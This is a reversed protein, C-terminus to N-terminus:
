LITKTELSCFEKSVTWRAAACGCGNGLRSSLSPYVLATARGVLKRVADIQREPNANGHRSRRRVQLVGDDALVRFRDEGTPLLKAFVYCSFLPVEVFKRRDSWRHVESWRCFLAIGQERLRQAVVKEHRARTHVAFWERKCRPALPLIATNPSAGLNTSASM